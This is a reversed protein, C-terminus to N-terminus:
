ENNSGRKREPFADRRARVAGALGAHCEFSRLLSPDTRVITELDVAHRVDGMSPCQPYSAALRAVDNAVGATHNWLCLKLVCPSCPQDM